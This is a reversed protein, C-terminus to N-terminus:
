HHELGPWFPILLRQSNSLKPLLYYWWLGLLTGSRLEWVITSHASVFETTTFGSIIKLEKGYGLMILNLRMVLWVEWWCILRLVLEPIHHRDGCRMQCVHLRSDPDLALCMMVPPGFDTGIVAITGISWSCAKLRIAPAM